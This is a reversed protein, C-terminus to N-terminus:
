QPGTGRGKGMTERMRRAIDRIEQECEIPVVVCVKKEGAERIRQKWALQRQANTARGGSPRPKKVPFSM